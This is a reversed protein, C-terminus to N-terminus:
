RNHYAQITNKILSVITMLGIGGPVPTIWEAKDKIAEFDVDGVLRSGTRSSQDEIRNIGVDFIIVGDKVMDAKVYHPIGIAAVIVDASQLEKEIDKSRSHLLTVTANGYKAKRSLLISIPTGVIDSRGLVAVKKGSLNLKLYEILLIIGYPTAPLFAPLGLAMKGFNTPHFGDVDKAPDIEMLLAQADLHAPLPLQLIFGDVNDDENLRHITDILKSQTIEADFHLLTSTIGLEDCVKVKNGVYAKSAPNDGVMIAALHPSRNGKSVIQSVEDKLIAKMEKSIKRVNLEAM